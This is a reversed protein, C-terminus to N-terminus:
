YFSEYQTVQWNEGHKELTVWLQGQYGDYTKRNVKYYM